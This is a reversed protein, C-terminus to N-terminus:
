ITLPLNFVLLMCCIKMETIEWPHNTLNLTKITSHMKIVGWIYMNTNHVNNFHLELHGHAHINVDIIFIDLLIPDMRVLQTDFSHIYICM